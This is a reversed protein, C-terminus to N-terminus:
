MPDETQGFFAKIKTFREKFVVSKVWTRLWLEVESYMSRVTFWLTSDRERKHRASLKAAPALIKSHSWPSSSNTSMPVVVVPFRRALYPWMLLRYMMRFQQFYRTQRPDLDAKCTIIHCPNGADTVKKTIVIIRIAYLDKLERNPLIQSYQYTGLVTYSNACCM